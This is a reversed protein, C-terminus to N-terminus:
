RKKWAQDIAEAVDTMLAQCGGLPRSLVLLTRGSATEEIRATTGQTRIDDCRDFYLTLEAAQTDRGKVVTVGYGLLVKEVAGYEEYAQLALRRPVGKPWKFERPPPEPPPPPPKACAAVVLLLAVLRLSM